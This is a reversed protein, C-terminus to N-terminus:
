MKKVPLHMKAIKKQAGIFGHWNALVSLLLQPSAFRGTINRPITLAGSGGGSTTIKGTNDPNDVNVRVNYRGGANILYRTFM